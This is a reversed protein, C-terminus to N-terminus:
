AEFGNKMYHCLPFDWFPISLRDDMIHLWENEWTYLGLNYVVQRLVSTKTTNKYVMALQTIPNKSIYNGQFTTIFVCPTLVDTDKNPLIVLPFM